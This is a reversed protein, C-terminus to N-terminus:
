TNKLSKIHDKRIKVMIWDNYFQDSELVRRDIQEKLELYACESRSKCLYLIERTFNEEGLSKVDEMLNKNSGWYDLWDSSKRIKKRKGKVQKSGAKTFFKKGIYKRGTTTNELLYVFGYHGDIDEENFVRGQYLWSM